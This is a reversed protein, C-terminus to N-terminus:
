SERGREKMYRYSTECADISIDCFMESVNYMMVLKEILKMLLDLNELKKPMLTQEIIKYIAKKTSIPRVINSGQSRNIFCLGQLPYGENKSIDNKGSWPTGYVKFEGDIYRFAPKDDNVIFSGKFRELYLNTHTSKGVGSRASFAYTKGDVVVASSHIVFADFKLIERYFVVSSFIYEIEELTLHPMEEKGKILREQNVNIEIDFSDNNEIIYPQIRDKLLQYKVDIKVILDMIKLTYKM